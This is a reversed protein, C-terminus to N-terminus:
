DSQPVARSRQLRDNFRKVAQNYDDTAGNATAIAENAAVQLCEALRTTATQFAAMDTRCNDIEAQDAFSADRSACAPPLVQVCAASALRVSGLVLLPAAFLLATAAARDLVARPM